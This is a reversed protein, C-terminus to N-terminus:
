RREQTYAKEPEKPAEGVSGLPANYNFCDVAVKWSGDIQKELITLYKGSGNTAEGGEKPKLVFEHL